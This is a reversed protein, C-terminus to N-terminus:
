RASSSIGVSPRIRSPMASLRMPPLMSPTARTSNVSWRNPEGARAPMTVKALTAGPSNMLGITPASSSRWPRVRSIM